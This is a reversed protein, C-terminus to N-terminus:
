GNSGGASRRAADLADRYQAVDAAVRVDAYPNAKKSKVRYGSKTWRYNSAIWGTFVGLGFILAVSVCIQAFAIWETM